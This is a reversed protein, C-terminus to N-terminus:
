LIAKILDLKVLFSKLWLTLIPHLWLHLTGLTGLVRNEALTELYYYGWSQTVNAQHGVFTCSWSNLKPHKWSDNVLDEGLSWLFVCSHEQSLGDLSLFVELHSTCLNLLMMLSVAKREGSELGWHQGWDTAQYRKAAPFSYPASLSYAEEDLIWQSFAQSGTCKRSAM